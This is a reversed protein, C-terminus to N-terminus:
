FIPLVSYVGVVQVKYGFVWLYLMWAFNGHMYRFAGKSVSRRHVTKKPFAAVGVNPPGQLELYKPM